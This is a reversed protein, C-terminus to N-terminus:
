LHGGRKRFWKILNTEENNNYQLCYYLPTKKKNNLINININYTDILLKSMKKLGNQSAVHLLSNGFEDKISSKNIRINELMESLDNIRNHRCYSFLQKKLISTLHIEEQQPQLQPQPQHHHYHQYHHDHEQHHHQKVQQHPHMNRPQPPTPQRNKRSYASMRTISPHNSIPMSSSQLRGRSSGSPPPDRPPPGRPPPGRPPPGRPPPGRPPPGRPPPGRANNRNNEIKLIVATHGGSTSVHTITDQISSSSILGYGENKTFKPIRHSNLRTHIPYPSLISKKPSLGISYCENDGWGYLLNNHTLAFSSNGGSYINKISVSSLSQVVKPSPLQKMFTKKMINDYGHGLQGNSNNGWTLVRSSSSDKELVITHSDGCVIAHAILSRGYYKVERPIYTYYVRGSMSTTSTVVGGGRLMKYFPGQHGLRGNSQGQFSIFFHTLKIV